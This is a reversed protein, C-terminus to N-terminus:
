RARKGEASIAILAEFRKRQTAERKASVVYFTM